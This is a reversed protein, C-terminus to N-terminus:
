SLAGGHVVVGDRVITLAAPGAEFWPTFIPDPEDDVAFAGAGGDGMEAPLSHAILRLSLYGESGDESPGVLYTEGWDSVVDPIGGYAVHVVDGLQAPYWPAAKLDREGGMLADVEGLFDRRRKADEALVLPSPQGVPTWPLQALQLVCSSCLDVM